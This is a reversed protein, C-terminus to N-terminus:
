RSRMRDTMADLERRLREAKLEMARARWTGKNMTGRRVADVIENARPWDGRTRARRFSTELPLPVFIWYAGMVLRKLSLVLFVVISISATWYFASTSQEIGITLPPGAFLRRADSANMPLLNGASKPLKDYFSYFAQIQTLREIPETVYSRMYMLVGIVLCGVVLALTIGLKRSGTGDFYGVGVFVTATIFALVLGLLTFATWMSNTQLDAPNLHLTADAVWFPRNGNRQWPVSAIGVCSEASRTTPPPNLWTPGTVNMAAGLRFPIIDQRDVAYYKQTVAAGTENVVTLAYAFRDPPQTATLPNCVAGRCPDNIWWRTGVLQYFKQNLMDHGGVRNAACSVGTMFVHIDDSARTWLDRRADCGVLCLAM